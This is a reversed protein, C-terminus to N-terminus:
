AVSVHEPAILPPMPCDLALATARLLEAESPLVKGDHLVCDACATLVSRKVLPSLQALKRLAAGLREATPTTSIVGTEDPGVFHRMVREFAERGAAETRAGARAVLALVLRIEEMVQDARHYRIVDSREARDALQETLITLLVFEFLTFRKDGEILAKVTGIFRLRAARDLEKLAPAVIDLLPLRSKAGLQSLTTLLDRVQNVQAEGELGTILREAKEMVAPATTTLVLAYVVARASEPNHAADLLPSPIAAHLEHAYDLHQPLPNGVTEAIEKATTSVGSNSGVAFGLAADPISANEVSGATPLPHDAKQAARKSELQKQAYYSPAVTKIRADLPPHTAMLSALKLSEAFCMHSMDEAHRNDLRSGGATKIKWLAGAICRPNRTFQVSSADALLERQRSIAAKILRGFFLGIYGVVFLILAIVVVLGGGGRRRSGRSSLRFHRLIFGGLQGIALIGALTSILRVNLRMDGNLIHSYEHGIVGQLEDRTLRELAGKTVVLVAQNVRYGAVFANIAPEEDMVYLVPVPTGSAIAMEEVVNILRREELAQSSMKIRRAGVMEAVAKGGGALTIFSRVSSFAVVGLVGVSIWLWYPRELWQKIPPIWEPESLRLATYVAANIALVTLVVALVFYATLRLTSRRARHQHEFFNM